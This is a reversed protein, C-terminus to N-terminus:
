SRWLARGDSATLVLAAEDTLTLEQADSGETRTSWLQKGDSASLVVDGGPLRFLPGNINANLVLQSNTATPNAIATVYDLAEQSFQNVGFLNLPSCTSNLTAINASTYGPRCIINGNAAGGNFLGEDVADVARSAADRLISWEAGSKYNALM